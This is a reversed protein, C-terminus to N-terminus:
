NNSRIKNLAAAAEEIRGDIDSIINDLQEREKVFRDRNKTLLEMYGELAVEVSDKEINSAAAEEDVAENTMDPEAAAEDNIPEAVNLDETEEPFCGTDDLVAPVEADAPEVPENIEENAEAVPEEVPDHLVAEIESKVFDEDQLPGALEPHEVAFKILDDNAVMFANRVTRGGIKATRKSAVITGDSILSRVKTIPLGTMEVIEKITYFDKKNTM